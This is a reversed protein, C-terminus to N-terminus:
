TTQLTSCAKFIISIIIESKQRIESMGFLRDCRHFTQTKKCEISGFLNVWTVLLTTYKTNYPINQYQTTSYHITYYQMTHNQITCYQTTNNQIMYRPITHYQVTHYQITKHFLTPRHGAGSSGCRCSHRGAPSPPPPRPTGAVASASWHPRWWWTACWEGRWREKVPDTPCRKTHTHYPPLTHMCTHPHPPPTTPPPPCHMHLNTQRCKEKAKWKEMGIQILHGRDLCFPGFSLRTQIESM